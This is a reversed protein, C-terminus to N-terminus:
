ARTRGILKRAERLGTGIDHSPFYELGVCGAYRTAEIAAFVAEYRIEGTTIEHRGPHGAAHFHAIRGINRTLSPILDGEMIQQHYLDFLIKVNPSGM